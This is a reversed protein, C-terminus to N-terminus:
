KTIIFATDNKTITLNNITGIRQLITELPITKNYKGTFYINKVDKSAFVIKVNYLGSLEQLVEELSQNNFMYWSGKQDQIFPNDRAIEDQIIQEPARKPKLKFATVKGNTDKTYVFEQGPM